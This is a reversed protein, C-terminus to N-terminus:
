YMNAWVVEEAIICPAFIPATYEAIKDTTDYAAVGYQKPM